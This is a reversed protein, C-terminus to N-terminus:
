KARELTTCHNRGLTKAYKNVADRLLKESEVFRGIHLLAVAFRQQTLLTYYHEPGYHQKQAALVERLTEVGKQDEGKRLWLESLLSRNQLQNELNRSLMDTEYLVVLIKEAEFYEGQDMLLGALNYMAEKIIQHDPPLTERGLVM